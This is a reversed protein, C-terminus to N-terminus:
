YGMPLEKRIRKPIIELEWSPNQRNFEDVDDTISQLTVIRAQAEPDIPSSVAPLVVSEPVVKNMDRRMNKGALTLRLWVTRMRGDVM